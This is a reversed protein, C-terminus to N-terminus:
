KLANRDGQEDQFYEHWLDGTMDPNEASFADFMKEREEANLLLEMMREPMKYSEAIGLYGNVFNRDMTSKFEHVM